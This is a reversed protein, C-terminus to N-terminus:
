QASLNFQTQQNGAFRVIVRWDGAMSLDATVNYRGPTESRTVDTSAMMPGMGPMPMTSQVQVDGVDALESNSSTRFELTFNNAGRKLTGSDNLVTVVYDGVRQQQVQQLETGGNCGTLVLVLM